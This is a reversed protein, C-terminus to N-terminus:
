FAGSTFRQQQGGNCPWVQVRGGNKYQDPAHVDLCLGGGNRLSGNPMPTWQQQLQGNCAWTQVRGGNTRMQPLDVDLCRGSAARLARRAPDYSWLQNARGNCGYVQIRGGNKNTDSGHLDLCLGAGTRISDTAPASSPRGGACGNATMKVDFAARIPGNGQSAVITRRIASVKFSTTPGMTNWRSVSAAITDDDSACVSLTATANAKVQTHASDKFNARFVVFQMQAGANAAPTASVEVLHPGPSRECPTGAIHPTAGPVDKKVWTGLILGSEAFSPDFNRSLHLLRCWEHQTQRKAFERSVSWDGGGDGDMNMRGESRVGTLTFQQQGKLDLKSLSFTKNGDGYDRDSHRLCLSNAARGRTRHWACNEGVPPCLQPYKSVDGSVSSMLGRYTTGGAIIIPVASTARGQADRPLIATVGPPTPGEILKVDGFLTSYGPRVPWFTLGNNFIRDRIGLGEPPSPIYNSHSYFDQIGHTIHGFLRVAKNRDSSPNRLAEDIGRYRDNIYKASLGFTCNQSHRWVEDEAKDHPGNTDENANGYVVTDLVDDVLFPLALRTISEHNGGSYASAAGAAAMAAFVTTAFISLSTWGRGNKQGARM